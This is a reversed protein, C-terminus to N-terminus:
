VCFIPENGSPVQSVEKELNWSLMIVDKKLKIYHLISTIYCFIFWHTSVLQMKRQIFDLVIKNIFIEM